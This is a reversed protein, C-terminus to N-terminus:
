SWSCCVLVFVIVWTVHYSAIGVDVSIRLCCLNTKKFSCFPYLCKEFLMDIVWDFIKEFYKMNLIKRKM